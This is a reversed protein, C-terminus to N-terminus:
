QVRGSIRVGDKARKKYADPEIEMVDCLYKQFTDLDDNEPEHAAAGRGRDGSQARARAEREEREAQTQRKGSKYGELEAREAALKMAVHQPVGDKVLGGYHKATAQFFESKNDKLEPYSAALENETAIQAARQNIRTEVDEARVFGRKSLLEDFGKAGKKAITELVDEETTDDTAAAAAPKTTSSKAQEHWYRIANDKEASETRLREVEAQLAKPDTQQATAAAADAATGGGGGEGGEAAADRLVGRFM